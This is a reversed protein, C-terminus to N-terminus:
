SASLPRRMWRAFPKQGVNGLSSVTLLSAALAEEDVETIVVMDYRGVCWYIDRVKVGKKGAMDRFAQARKPSEKVAKIGADTFKVLSINIAM